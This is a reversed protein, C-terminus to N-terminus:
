KAAAAGCLFVWATVEAGAAVVLGGREDVSDSEAHCWVGDTAALRYTGPALAGFRVLGAADTVGAGAAAPQTADWAALTFPVGEVGPECVGYWDFGASAPEEACAYTRVVVAGPAAANAEAAALPPLEITIATAEAAATTEATEQGAAEGCALGPGTAPFVGDGTKFWYTAAGGTTVAGHLVLTFAGGGGRSKYGVVRTNPDPDVREADGGVVEACVESAPLDVHGVDKAGPPAVGAFACTTADAAGDYACGVEVRYPAAPEVPGGREDGKADDEDGDKDKDDKKEDNEEGNGEDKGDDGNRGTDKGEDALASPANGVTVPAAVAGAALLALTLVLGLTMRFRAM